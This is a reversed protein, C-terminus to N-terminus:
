PIEELAELVFARRCIAVADADDYTPDVEWDDPWVWHCTEAAPDDLHGIAIVWRGPDGVDLTSGPAV